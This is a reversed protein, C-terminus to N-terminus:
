TSIDSSSLDDAVSSSDGMEALSDAATVSSSGGSPTISPGILTTSDDGMDPFSSSLDQQLLSSQQREPVPAPALRRWMVPDLGFWEDYVYDEDLGYIGNWVSLTSGQHDRKKSMAQLYNKMTKPLLVEKLMETRLPYITLFYTVLGTVHAAALDAGGVPQQQQQEVDDGGTDMACYGDGPARVTIAPGSATLPLPNGFNPSTRWPDVAGVTIIDFELSLMAPWTNITPNQNNHNDESQGASTVIIVQYGVLAQILDRMRAMDPDGQTPVYGGSIHLVTFGRVPEKGSQVTTFVKALADLFSGILPKTKVFTLSASNAVGNNHGTIKSAICTGHGTPDSNKKSPKSVTGLAFMWDISLGQLDEATSSLGEDIIWVKVHHKGVAFSVYESGMEVGPPSSLYILGDDITPRRTVSLTERKKLSKKLNAKPPVAGPEAKRPSRKMLKGFKYPTNRIVAKIGMQQRLTEIQSQALQAQWFGVGNKQPCLPDDSTMYKPDMSWLLKGIETNRQTDACDVPWVLQGLGVNCPDMIRDGAEGQSDRDDSPLAGTCAESGPSPETIFLEIQPDQDPAKKQDGQLSNPSTILPLTNIFDDIWGGVAGWDPGPFCVISDCTADRAFLKPLASASKLLYVWQLTAFGHKFLPAM